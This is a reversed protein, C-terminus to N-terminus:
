RAGGSEKTFSVALEMGEALERAADGRVEVWTRDSVGSEEIAIQRVLKGGEVVWVTQGVSETMQRRDPRRPMAILGGSQQPKAADQSAGNPTMAALVEAPPSFRLAAAPVRVVNERQETVVNINATMGPLLRLDKNSIGLIVTYTVVNSVTTPSLRIQSVTAEFREDPWSDFTVTARQGAKISGIDAEDINAEIRMETLDKAISFLTPTNFSAAVTQGVEVAKDVVIGDIPSTIIAYGLNTEAQKLSETSQAVRARAEALSAKAVALTTETKDLDARAILRRDWLEKNRDYNRQAERLNAQATAVGANAVSLSAKASAVQSALVDPDLVALLDGKKVKSNFDVYIDVILGSVQSGVEVMEVASLKGTASISTTISGVTVAQTRYIYREGGGGITMRYAAFGAAAVIILIVIYKVRGRM